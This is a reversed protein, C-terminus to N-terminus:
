HLPMHIEGPQLAAKKAEIYAVKEDMTLESYKKNLEPMPASPAPRRLDVPQTVPSPIADGQTEVQQTVPNLTQPGYSFAANPDNQPKQQPQQTRQPANFASSQTAGSGQAQNATKMLRQYDTNNKLDQILEAENIVGFQGTSDQIELEPKEGTMNIRMREQIHPLMLVPAVSIEQAINRAKAQLVEKDIYEELVNVKGKWLKEQANLKAQWSAELKKVDGKKRADDDKETQREETLANIKEELEAQKQLSQEYKENASKNNIKLREYSRKLEGVPEAMFVYKGDANEQYLNRDTEGLAEYGEKDLEREIPM